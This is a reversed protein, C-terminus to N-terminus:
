EEKLLEEIEEDSLENVNLNINTEQKDKWGLQKLSFIAMTHNVEGKLAKKELQAEKKDIAKKILSSFEEYDYLTQRNIDNLYAFEALIPIETKEIYEALKQTLGSVQEDTYKRPRM